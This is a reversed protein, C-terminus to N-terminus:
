WHQLKRPAHALHRMSTMTLSALIMAIKAQLSHLLFTHRLMLKHFPRHQLLAELYSVGISDGLFAATALFYIPRPHQSLGLIVVNMFDQSSASFVRTDFPTESPFAPHDNRRDAGWGGPLGQFSGCGRWSIQRRATYIYSIGGSFSWRIHPNHFSVNKAIM